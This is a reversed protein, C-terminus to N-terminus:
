MCYDKLYGAEDLIYEAMSLDFTYYPQGNNQTDYYPM